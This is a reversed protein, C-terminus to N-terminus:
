SNACCRMSGPKKEQIPVWLSIWYAAQQLLFLLLSVPSQFASGKKQSDSQPYLKQNESTDPMSVTSGDALKVHRGRWLWKPDAQEELQQGSERTLGSLVSEPLRSRAKCYAATNASPVENGQNILHAIIQSVSAQCSPDSSIAQSLFGFLTLEPTFIRDRHKLPSLRKSLNATSLIDQFPLKDEARINNIISKVPNIASHPNNIKV